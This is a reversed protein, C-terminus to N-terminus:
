DHQLGLDRAFLGMTGLNPDELAAFWECSQLDPMYFNDDSPAYFSENADSRQLNDLICTRLDEACSWTERISSLAELLTDLPVKLTPDQLSTKELASKSFLVGISVSLIYVIDLPLTRFSYLRGFTRVLKLIAELSEYCVQVDSSASECNPELFSHPVRHLVIMCSHYLM